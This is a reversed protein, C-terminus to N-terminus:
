KLQLNNDTLSCLFMALINSYWFLILIDSFSTMSLSLVYPFLINELSQVLHQRQYTQAVEIQVGRFPQQPKSRSAKNLGM